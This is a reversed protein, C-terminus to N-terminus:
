SNKDLIKKPKLDNLFLELSTRIVSLVQKSTECHQSTDNVFPILVSYVADILQDDYLIPILAYGDESKTALEDKELKKLHYTVLNIHQKTIQALKYTSTPM